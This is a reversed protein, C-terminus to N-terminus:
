GKRKNPTPSFSSHRGLYMVRGAAAGKMHWRLDSIPAILQPVMVTLERLYSSLKQWLCMTVMSEVYFDHSLPATAYVIFQMYGLIEFDLGGLGAKLGYAEYGGMGFRICQYTM